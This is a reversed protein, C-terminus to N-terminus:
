DEKLQEKMWKAGEMFSYEMKDPEPLHEIKDINDNVYEFAARKVMTSQDLDTYIQVKDSGTHWIKYNDESFSLFPHEGDLPENNVKVYLKSGNQLNWNIIGKLQHGSLQDPLVLVKEWYALQSESGEINVIPRGHNDIRIIDYITNAYLVKDSPTVKEKQSTIVPKIWVSDKYEPLEEYMSDHKQTWMFLDHVHNSALDGPSPFHQTNIYNLKGSVVYGSHSPIVHEVAPQYSM